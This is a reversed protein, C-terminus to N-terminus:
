EYRLAVLPDVRMARRTPIYSALLTVLLMVVSVGVYTIPDFPGVGFLQSALLRSGAFAAAIGLAIGTLSFKAGEKMVLWVVDCRQAGLAFRIGIERTRKSM